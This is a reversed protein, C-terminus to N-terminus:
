VFYSFFKNFFTGTEKFLKGRQLANQVARQHLAVSHAGTRVAFAMLTITMTWHPTKDNIDIALLSLFVNRIFFDSFGHGAQLM